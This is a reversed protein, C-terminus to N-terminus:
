DAELMGRIARVENLIAGLPAEEGAIPEEEGGTPAMAQRYRRLAQAVQDYVEVFNPLGALKEEAGSQGSMGATQIDLTGLAFLRDFPGQSTKLNTVTRFPVHKVSKTIVGGRVIVEEPHIEYQLSNVYPTIVLITPLIWLLNLGLAWYLGIWAGRAAGVDRGILMAFLISVALILGGWVALMLYYKSRLRRAPKLITPQM